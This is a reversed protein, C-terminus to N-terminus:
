FHGHELMRDAEDIVLLKLTNIKNLHECGDTMLKHLRGPTVVVIEPCKTLLREQKASALGGVVSVCQISTYKAATQIHQTIQIALERTPSIILAYMPTGEETEDDNENQQQQQQQQQHKAKM